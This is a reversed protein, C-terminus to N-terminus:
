SQTCTYGQQTLINQVESVGMTQNFPVAPTVTSVTEDSYSIDETFTYSKDASQETVNISPSQSHSVAMDQYTKIYQDFATKTTDLTYTALLNQTSNVLQDDIFQFDYFSTTKLDTTQDDLNCSLSVLVGGTTSDDDEVPEEETQNQDNQNNPEVKEEDGFKFISEGRVVMGVWDFKIATVVVLFIGLLVAVVTAIQAKQNM